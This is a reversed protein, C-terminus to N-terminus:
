YTIAGKVTSTFTGKGRDYNGTIKLLGKAKKYKLTGGTVKATATIANQNSDSASPCAKAGAALTFNIQGLKGKISGKGTFTNCPSAQFGVGLGTLTGAGLVNSKGAGKANISAATDSTASVVARGAYSGSFAAKVSAVAPSSTASPASAAAAAGVLLVLSGLGLVAGGFRRFNTM